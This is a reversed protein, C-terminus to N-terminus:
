PRSDGCGCLPCGTTINPKFLIQSIVVSGATAADETTLSDSSTLLIEGRSVGRDAITYNGDNTSSGTSISIYMNSSIHQDGFRFASDSIKAAVDATAATFSISTATYMETTFTAYGRDITIGTELYLTTGDSLTLDSGDSLTLPILQTAEVGSKTVTTVPLNTQPMSTHLNEM